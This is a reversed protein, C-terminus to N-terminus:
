IEYPRELLALDFACVCDVGLDRTYLLLNRPHSSLAVIEGRPDVLRWRDTMGEVQEIKLTEGDKPEIYRDVNRRTV